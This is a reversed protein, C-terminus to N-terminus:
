QSKLKLGHGDKGGDTQGYTQRGVSQWHRLANAHEEDNTQLSFLVLMFLSRCAKGRVTACVWARNWNCPRPDLLELHRHRRPMLICLVRQAHAEVQDQDIAFPLPLHCHYIALPWTRSQGLRWVRSHDLGSKSDIGRSTPPLLTSKNRGSLYIAQLNHWFSLCNKLQLEKM